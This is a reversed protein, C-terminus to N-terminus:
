WSLWSKQSKIRKPVSFVLRKDRTGSFFRKECVCDFGKKPDWFLFFTSFLLVSILKEEMILTEFTVTTTNTYKLIKKLISLGTEKVRKVSFEKVRIGGELGRKQLCKEITLLFYM